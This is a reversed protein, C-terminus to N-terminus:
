ELNDLDSTSTVVVVPNGDVKRVLVQGNNHWVYKFHADKAWDKTDQLLVRTRKTLNELMYVKDDRDRLKNRNKWWKDRDAHRAFRCIIGPIKGKKTLLRHIAMVDNESLPPLEVAPALANLKTLLTEKETPMIGHFELNLRRSWWELNDIEAEMQSFNRNQTELKETRRRLEKIHQENQVVRQLIEDYQERWFQLSDEIGEIVAKLPLLQDLKDNITLLLQRVDHTETDISPKRTPERLSSRRSAPCRWTQRYAEGKTKITKESIGSCAGTHYECFCASCQITCEPVSLCKNCENCQKDSSM